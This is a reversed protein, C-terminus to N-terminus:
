DVLGASRLENLDSLQRKYQRNRRGCVLVCDEVWGDGTTARRVLSAAYPRLLNDSWAPAACMRQANDLTLVAQDGHRLRIRSAPVNRVDLEVCDMGSIDLAWTADRYWEFRTHVPRRLDDRVVIRGFKGGLMVRRFLVPLVMTQTSTVDLFRCDVFAVAGSVLRSVDVRHLTISHLVLVDADATSGIWGSLARDSVVCGAKVDAGGRADIYQEIKKM